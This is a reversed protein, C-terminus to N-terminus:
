KFECLIVPMQNNKIDIKYISDEERIVYMSNGPINKSNKGDNIEITFDELSFFCLSGSRKPIYSAEQAFVQLNAFKGDKVIFNYDVCDLSNTSDTHWSGSFYEVEYPQLSRQYLDKHDVSLQGKLPLIYRQYGSFDSFTSATSTFTASSIRFDFDRNKFDAGEPEIILQTTTGGSWESVSFDEKNILKDKM